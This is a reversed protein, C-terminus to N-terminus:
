RHRHLGHTQRALTEQYWRGLAFVLGWRFQLTGRLVRLRNFEVLETLMSIACRVARDEDDEHALPTGFVAMIADGIFKDLM